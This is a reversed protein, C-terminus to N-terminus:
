NNESIPVLKVKEPVTEDWVYKYKTFDILGGLGLWDNNSEGPVSKLSVIGDKLLSYDNGNSDTFDLTRTSDDAFKTKLSSLESDSLESKVQGNSFIITVTNTDAM